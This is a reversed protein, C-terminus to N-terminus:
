KNGVDELGYLAADDGFMDRDADDNLAQDPMKPSPTGLFDYLMLEPETGDFQIGEKKAVM